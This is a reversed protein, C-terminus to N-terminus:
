STFLQLIVKLQTLSGWKYCLNEMVDKEGPLKIFLHPYFM